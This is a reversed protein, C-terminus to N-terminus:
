RRFNCTSFREHRCFFSISFYESCLKAIKYRERGKLWTLSNSLVLVKYAQSLLSPHSTESPLPPLVPRCKLVSRRGGRDESDRGSPCGRSPRRSFWGATRWYSIVFGELTKSCVFGSDAMRWYLVLFLFFLFAAGRTNACPAAKGTGKPM